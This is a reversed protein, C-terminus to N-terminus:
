KDGFAIPSELSEGPFGAFIWHIRGAEGFSISRLRTFGTLSFFLISDM